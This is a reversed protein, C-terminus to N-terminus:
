GVVIPKLNPFYWLSLYLVLRVDHAKSAAVTSELSADDIAVYMTNGEIIRFVQRHETTQGFPCM